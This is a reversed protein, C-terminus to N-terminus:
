FMDIIVNINPLLVTSYIFILNDIIENILIPQPLKTTNKCIFQHIVSEFHITHLM